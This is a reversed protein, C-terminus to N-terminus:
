MVQNLAVATLAVVNLGAAARGNACASVWM